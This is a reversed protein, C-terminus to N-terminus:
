PAGGSVEASGWLRVRLRALDQELLAERAQKAAYREEAERARRRAMAAAYAEVAPALAEQAQRALNQLTKDSAGTMTAIGGDLWRLLADRDPAAGGPHALAYAAAPGGTSLAFGLLSLKYVSGGLEFALSLRYSARGAPSFALALARPYRATGPDEGLEALCADVRRMRDVSRRHMDTRKAMHTRHSALEDFVGGGGEAINQARVGIAAEASQFRWALEDRAASIAARTASSGSVDDNQEERDM